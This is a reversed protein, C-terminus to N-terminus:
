YLAFVYSTNFFSLRKAPLNYSNSTTSPRSMSAMKGLLGRPSLTDWNFHIDAIQAEFLQHSTTLWSNTQPSTPQDGHTVEALFLLIINHTKDSVNNLWITVLQWIDPMTTLINPQELTLSSWRACPFATHLCSRKLQLYEFSAKIWPLNISPSNKISWDM